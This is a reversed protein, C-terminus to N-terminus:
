QYNKHSNKDLSSKYKLVQKPNNVPTGRPTKKDSIKHNSKLEVTGMASVDEAENDVFVSIEKKDSGNMCISCYAGM